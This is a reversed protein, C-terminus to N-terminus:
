NTSHRKNQQQIRIQTEAKSYLTRPSPREIGERPLALAPKMFSVGTHRVCWQSFHPHIPTLTSHVLSFPNFAYNKKSTQRNTTRYPTSVYKMSSSRFLFTLTASSYIITRITNPKEPVYKKSLLFTLTTIITIRYNWTYNTKILTWLDPTM